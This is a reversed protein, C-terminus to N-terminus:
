NHTWTGDPHLVTGESYNLNGATDYSAAPVSYSGGSTVYAGSAYLQSGDTYVVHYWNVSAPPATPPSINGWGEALAVSVALVLLSVSAVSIRSFRRLHATLTHM